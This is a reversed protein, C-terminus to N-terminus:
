NFITDYLVHMLSSFEPKVLLKFKRLDRLIPTNPKATVPCGQSSDKFDLTLGWKCWSTGAQSGGQWWQGSWRALAWCSRPSFWFLPLQDQQLADVGKRLRLRVCQTNPQDEERFNMEFFIGLMSPQHLIHWTLKNHPTYNCQSSKLRSM